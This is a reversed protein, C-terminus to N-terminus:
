EHKRRKLSTVSREQEILRGRLAGEKGESFRLEEKLPDVLRKLEIPRLREVKAQREVALIEKKLAAIRAVVAAHDARDDTSVAAELVKRALRM